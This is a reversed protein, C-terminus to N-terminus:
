ESEGVLTVGVQIDEKPTLKRLDQSPDLPEIIPRPGAGNDAPGDGSPAFLPNYPHGLLELEYRGYGYTAAVVLVFAKNPEHVTFDAWQVGGPDDVWLIMEGTDPDFVGLAVEAYYNLPELRIEFSAAEDTVFEFHDYIDGLPGPDDDVHGDVYLHSFSDVPGIFDGFFPDDNPEREEFVLASGGGGGGGNGGSHGNHHRGNCGVALLSIGALIALHRPRIPASKLTAKM